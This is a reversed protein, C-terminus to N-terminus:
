NVGTIAVFSAAPRLVAIGVRAYVVYGVSLTDMYRERLPVITINQRLGVYLDSWMGTLIVSSANSTGQVLNVPCASTVLYRAGSLVAPPELYRLQSDKLLDLEQKTRPHMIYADSPVANNTLLMGRAQVLPDYNTMAAGNTGMSITPVGTTYYLGTPVGTGTGFLAVRDLEHAMTASFQSALESELPLVSDQILQLSIKVSFAVTSPVIPVATYSGESEPVATNEQSGLWTPTPDTSVVPVSNSNSGITLVRTGAAATVMVPRLRDVLEPVIISPVLYGGTADAGEAYSARNEVLDKLFTGLRNETHGSVAREVAGEHNTPVPMANRIKPGVPKRGDSALEADIRDVEAMIHEFRAEDAETMGNRHETLSKADALKESRLAKLAQESMDAFSM